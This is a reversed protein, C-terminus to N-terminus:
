WLARLTKYFYQVENTTTVHPDRYCGNFNMAEQFLRAYSFLYGELSGCYTCGLVSDRLMKRLVGMGEVLTSNIERPSSLFCEFAGIRVPLLSVPM